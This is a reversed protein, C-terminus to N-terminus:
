HQRKRDAVVFKGFRGVNEHGQDLDEGVPQLALPDIKAEEARRLDILEGIDVRSHDPIVPAKSVGAPAPPAGAM